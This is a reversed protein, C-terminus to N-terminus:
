MVLLCLGSSSVVSSLVFLPLCNSEEGNAMVTDGEEVVVPNAVMAVERTNVAMQLQLCRWTILYPSSTTWVNASASIMLPGMLDCLSSAAAKGPQISEFKSHRSELESRRTLSQTDRRSWTWYFWTNMSCFLVLIHHILHNM